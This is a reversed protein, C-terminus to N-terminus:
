EVEKNKHNKNKLASLRILEDLMKSLMEDHEIETGRIDKTNM